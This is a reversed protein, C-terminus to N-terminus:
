PWRIWIEGHHRERGSGLHDRVRFRLDSLQGGEDNYVQSCQIVCGPHCGHTPKGRRKIITDHMTEGSINDHATSNGLAHLEQDAVRGSRQYHQGSIPAM